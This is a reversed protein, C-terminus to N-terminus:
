NMWSPLAKKEKKKEAVQTFVNDCVKQLFLDVFEYGYDSSLGELMDEWVDKTIDYKNKLMEYCYKENLESLDFDILVDYSKSLKAKTKDDLDNFTIDEKESILKQLEDLNKIDAESLNANAFYKVTLKKRDRQYARKLSNNAEFEYIEDKYEIYPKVNM